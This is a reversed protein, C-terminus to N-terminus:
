CGRPQRWLTSWGAIKSGRVQPEGSLIRVGSGRIRLGCFMHLIRRLRAFERVRLHLMLRQMAASHTGGNRGSVLGCPGELHRAWRERADRKEDLYGWRNYVGAVGSLRGTQHNLVKEIVWPEVKLCAMGSAVIRRLDGSRGLDANSSSRPGSRCASM